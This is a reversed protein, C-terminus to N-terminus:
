KCDQHVACFMKFLLRIQDAIKSPNIQVVSGTLDKKRMTGYGVVVVEDLMETDDKLVINLSKSSDIKFEQTKYGIFLYKM